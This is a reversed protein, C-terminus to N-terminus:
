FPFNGQWYERVEDATEPPATGDASWLIKDESPLREIEHAHVYCDSEMNSLGLDYREDIRERVEEPTDIDLEAYDYLHSLGYSPTAECLFTRVNRDLVYVGWMKRVFPKDEDQLNWYRTENLRVAMADIPLDTPSGPM